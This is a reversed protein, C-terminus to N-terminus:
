FTAVRQIVWFMALTGIAYPPVFVIWLPFSVRIKRVFGSLSLVLGVFLLHGTEVGISFFLLATPIRGVPLGAERLGDAFGLGHMLGFGFAVVWPARTTLSSRGHNMHVIEAAVFVISLAIVAEVPPQPVNVFGLTAATLTLRHSLTFATITKVLKWGGQTILLLALVFLLHDVGTLIHEVCLKLYVGATHWASPTTPVVATPQQPTLRQVWTTGNTWEIRVLVDVVSASLGGIHIARGGLGGPCHVTWRDTYAKNAMSRSPETVSSCTTPLEASLALRLNGKGPVKWLADYTDPAATQRLELYGPRVEHSRASSVTAVLLGGLLLVRKM